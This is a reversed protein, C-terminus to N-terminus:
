TYKYSLRYAWEDWTGEAATSPPQIAVYIFPSDTDVAVDGINPTVPESEPLISWAAKDTDTYAAPDKFSDRPVINLGHTWGAAADLNAGRSDDTLDAGWFSADLIGNASVSAVVCKAPGWTGADITGHDLTTIASGKSAYDYDATITTGSAPATVFTIEGTEYNISYDTAKTQAVGDIYVTESDVEVPKQALSFVTTTGDGIGVAEGVISAATIPYWTIVPAVM